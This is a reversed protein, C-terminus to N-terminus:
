NNRWDSGTGRFPIVINAWDAYDTLVNRNGDSNIDTSVCNQTNNGNSNWDINIGDCVGNNENLCNEDLSARMGQSYTYINHNNDLDCDIDIGGFQSPTRFMGTYGMVSNYNPKRNRNEEGGHHLNLAHGLEHIFTGTQRAATYSAAGWNAFTVIFDNATFGESWGSYGMGTAENWGFICYRYINLRDSNFHTAKLDYVSEIDDTAPDLSSNIGYHPFYIYEVFPIENGGGGAGPQGRDIHITIGTSGDPNLIPANAFATEIPTWIANNPDAGDIWDVEVFIDKRYKNAGLAPLDIDTTGDGDADYGNEEWKDPLGDGDSDLENMNNALRYSLQNSLLNDLNKLKVQLTSGPTKEQLITWVTAYHYIPYGLTSPDTAEMDTNRLLHSFYTDVENNNILIKCGVDFNAGHVMLITTAKGGSISFLNVTVDDIRPQPRIPDSTVNFQITNDSTGKSNSLQVPHNGASAGMPVSFFKASLFSSPLSTQTALGADWRVSTFALSNGVVEVVTGPPGSAPELNTLVPKKVCGSLVIVFILHICFNLPNILEKNM